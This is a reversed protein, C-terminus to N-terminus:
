SPVIDVRTGLSTNLVASRNLCLYNFGCDVNILIFITTLNLLRSRGTPILLKMLTLPNQTTIKSLSGLPM